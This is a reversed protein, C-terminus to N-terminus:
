GGDAQKIGLLKIGSVILDEFSPASFKLLGGYRAIMALGNYSIRETYALLKLSARREDLLDRYQGLSYCNLHPGIRTRDSGESYTSALEVRKEDVFRQITQESFLHQPYPMGLRRSAHLGWPSHYLPAFTLYILGGPKTVRLMEALAAGPQDFHELSNISFVLDFQNSSFPLGHCVDGIAFELPASRPRPGLFGRIDTAFVQFGMKHLHHAAVGHGCGVELITNSAYLKAIRAVRNAWKIQRKHVEEPSSKPVTPFRSALSLLDDYGLQSCKPHALTFFLWAPAAVVRSMKFAMSEAWSVLLFM